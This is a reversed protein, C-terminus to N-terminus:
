PGVAAAGPHARLEAATLGSWGSSWTQRRTLMLIAVRSAACSAASRWATSILMLGAPGAIPKARLSWRPSAIAATLVQYGEARLNYALHRPADDEV